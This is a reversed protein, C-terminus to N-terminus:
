RHLKGCRGTWVPYRLLNEFRPRGGFRSAEPFLPGDWGGQVTVTSSPGCKRWGKTPNLIFTEVTAVWKRPWARPRGSHVLRTIVSKIGASPM